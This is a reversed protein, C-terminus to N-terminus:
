TLIVSIYKLWNFSFPLSNNTSFLGAYLMWPVILLNSAPAAEEPTPFIIGALLGYSGGTFSCLIMIFVSYIKSFTFFKDPQNDLDVAWYVGLSILTPAVLHLPLTSIQKSLFYPTLNYLGSAEEKFYLNREKPVTYYKCTLATSIVCQFVQQLMVFFLFGSRSTVGQLSTDLDNWILDLMLILWLSQFLTVRYILPERAAHKFNRILNWKLQTFWSSTYRHTINKLSNLDETEIYINSNPFMFQDKNMEYADVLFTLRNQEEETKKERSVVHLIEMYYDPPNILVPTAYGLDSFYHRSARAPGQFVISGEFLLILREFNKYMKDSPQHLTSIVTRGKRAELKLLDLIVDATYSDLGSTPEDLFLISPDSILELGIAVRKREGGSIGKVFQSGIVTDAAKTLSLHELMDNVVKQRYDKDGKVKLNAAFELTERCTMTPLMVDEQTVYGILDGFNFDRINNGNGKIKGEFEVEGVSTIRNCLLNLLTTKGAGSSGMLVLLEGPNAYGTVGNLIPIKKTEQRSKKIISYKVDAWELLIPVITSFGSNNVCPTAEDIVKNSSLHKSQFNLANDSELNPSVSKDASNSM